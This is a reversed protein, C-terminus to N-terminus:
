LRQANRTRAEDAIRFRAALEFRGDRHRSDPLRDYPESGVIGGRGDPILAPGAWARLRSIVEGATEWRSLQEDSPLDLVWVIIPRGFLATTDIELWCARGQDLRGPLAGSILPLEGVKRMRGRLGLETAGWRRVPSRSLVIFQDAMVFSSGAFREAMENFPKNWTPNAMIALDSQVLNM